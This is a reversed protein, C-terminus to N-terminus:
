TSVLFLRIIFFATRYISRGFLYECSFGCLQSLIQWIVSCDFNCM